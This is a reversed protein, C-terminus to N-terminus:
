SLLYEVGVEWTREERKLLLHCSLIEFSCSCMRTLLMMQSGLLDARFLVKRRAAWGDPAGAPWHTASHGESLFGGHSSEPCVLSRLLEPPGGLSGIVGAPAVPVRSSQRTGGVGTM